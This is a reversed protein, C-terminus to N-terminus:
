RYSSFPVGVIFLNTREYTLRWLGKHFGRADLDWIQFCKAFQLWASYDKASVMSIFLVNSDYHHNVNIDKHSKRGTCNTLYDTQVIVHGSKLKSHVLDEYQDQILSLIFM